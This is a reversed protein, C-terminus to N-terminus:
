IYCNRAANLPAKGQARNGKTPRFSKPKMRYGGESLMLTYWANRATGREQTNCLQGQLGHVWLLWHISSSLLQANNTTALVSFPTLV